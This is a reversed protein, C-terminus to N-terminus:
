WQKQTFVPSFPGSKKLSKILSWMIHAKRPGVAHGLGDYLFVLGTRTAVFSESAFEASEDSFITPDIRSQGLEKRFAKAILQKMEARSGAVDKLKLLMPKGGSIGFNMTAYEVFPHAGGMYGDNTFHVSLVRASDFDVSCSVDISVQGENGMTQVDEKFRSLFHKAKAEIARNAFRTLASDEKFKVYRVTAEAKAARWTLTKNVYSAPALAALAM